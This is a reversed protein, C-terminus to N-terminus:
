REVLFMKEFMRPRTSGEICRTVKERGLVENPVPDVCWVTMWAWSRRYGTRQFIM